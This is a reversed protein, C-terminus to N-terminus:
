PLRGLFFDIGRAVCRDVKAQGAATPMLQGCSLCEHLAVRHVHIEKGALSAPQTLRVPYTGLRRKLAHGGCHPCTTPKTRRPM